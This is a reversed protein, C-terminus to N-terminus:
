TSINEPQFHKSSGKSRYNSVLLLILVASLASSALGVYKWLPPDPGSVSVPEDAKKVTVAPGVWLGHTNCWLYARVSEVTDASNEVYFKMTAINMDTPDLVKMVLIKNYQDVIWINTIWHPSNKEDSMDSSEITGKMPHYYKEDGVIVSGTIVNSPSDDLKIHPVHSSGDAETFPEPENFPHKAQRWFFDAVFAKHSQSDIDQDKVVRFIDACERKEHASDDGLIRNTVRITEGKFLGHRNCVQYPTLEIEDDSYPVNFEMYTFQVNRSYEKEPDMYKIAVTNNYQDLVFIYTVFHAYRSDFSPENPHWNQEEGIKVIATENSRSVTIHPTHSLVINSNYLMTEATYAKDYKYEMRQRVYADSVMTNCLYSATAGYTRFDVSFSVICLLKIWFLHIDHRKLSNGGRFVENRIRTM